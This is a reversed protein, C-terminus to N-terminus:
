QAVESATAGGSSSPTSSGAPTATSTGAGANPATPSTPSASAAADDPSLLYATASIEAKVAPFGGAGATLAFGDVSLLRGRVDVNDGKVRVFRQVESFFTEMDFFSGNFVFSFPM